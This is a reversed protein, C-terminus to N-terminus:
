PLPAPRFPTPQSALASEIRAIRRAPDPMSSFRRESPLTRLYDILARADYGSAKLTTIARADAQLESMRAMETLAFPFGGEMSAPIITPIRDPLAYVSMQMLDGKTALRTAHRLSIHAMSHALIAALQAENVKSLSSPVFIWGGAISLPEGDLRGPAYPFELPRPSISHAADDFVLVHYEFAGGSHPALAAAIRAVQPDDIVILSSRLDNSISRGLQAEAAISYFNIGSKPPQAYALASLLCVFTILRTSM